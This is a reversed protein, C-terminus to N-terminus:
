DLWLSNNEIGPCGEKGTKFYDDRGPDLVLDEALIRSGDGGDYMLDVPDDTTHGNRGFHPACPEVAGMAHVLKHAISVTAGDGFEESEMSPMTSGCTGAWVIAIDPVIPGAGRLPSPNHDCRVKESDLTLPVFVLLLSRKPLKGTEDNRFEDRVMAAADEGEQLEATSAELPRSEVTAKGDLGNVSVTGGKTQAQFWRQVLTLEHAIADGPDADVPGDAPPAYVAQVWVPGGTPAPAAAREEGSGSSSLQWWLVAILLMVALSILPRKKGLQERREAKKQDVAARQVAQQERQAAESRERASPEQYRAGAIFNEDLFMEPLEDQGRDDGM